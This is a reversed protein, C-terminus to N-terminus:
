RTSRWEGERIIYGCNTCQHVKYYEARGHLIKAEQLKKCKPCKIQDNDFPLQEPDPVVYTELLPKQTTFSTKKMSM